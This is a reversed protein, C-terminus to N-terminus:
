LNIKRLRLSNIGGLILFVGGLAIFWKEFNSFFEPLAIFAIAFNILYFALLFYVLIFFSFGKSRTGRM